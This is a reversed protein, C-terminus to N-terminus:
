FSSVDEIQRLKATTKAHRASLNAPKNIQKLNLSRNPNIVLKIARVFPNNTKLRLDESYQITSELYVPTEKSFVPLAHHDLSM